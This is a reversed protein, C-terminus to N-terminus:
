NKPIGVEERWKLITRRREPYLAKERAIKQKFEDVM